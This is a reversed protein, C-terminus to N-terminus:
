VFDGNKAIEGKGMQVDSYKLGSATETMASEQVVLPKDTPITMIEEKECGFYVLSAMLFLIVIKM